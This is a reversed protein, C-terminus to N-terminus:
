KQLSLTLLQSDQYLKKSNTNDPLILIKSGLQKRYQAGLPIIKAGLYITTKDFATIKDVAVIYSRHVRCFCHAALTTEMEKLTCQVIWKRQDTSIKVYNRCGEIYLIDHINIKVHRNHEKIFFYNNM